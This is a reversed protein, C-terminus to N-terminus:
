KKRAAAVISVVDRDKLVYDTPLRLGTRADIAYLMTKALETHIERALEKVDASYPILFADPLIRGMHDSLRKADEVPYVTNMNLLKFICMNIAFQVGTNVWRSLVREQVYNLAWRQEKTLKAEDLVQFKEEGPVYRIFGKEEARRLALEAESCAPIVFSGRFEERMREYNESANAIDMKNAIIVTPKSLRRVERAFVMVDKESWKKPPKELGSRALAKEVHDMKVRLGALSRYVAEELQAGSEVRKMVTKLSKHISKAFWMTIEEEIDYVDLIPNGLGPRTLRGEADISGSADAVHILADAQAAVSLFRNGLGMGEWSGKILGPLDVLEVPIFRWGDICASNRPEDKVGLERCVCITRVYATGTNPQKTTFPYTSVEASLLTAANFFTTKGTNTKGIIGVRIM